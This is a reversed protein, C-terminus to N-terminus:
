QASYKKLMMMQGLHYADHQLCGMMLEYYTQSPKPSPKDLNEEKINHIANRLLHYASEFDHLTQRWNEESLENPLLFDHFPPPNNTGTLRNVVSTRWYIIHAVLQWTNNTKGDASIMARKADVAHLVEKFNNGIWCNGHQLDAFLKLIRNIENAMNKDPLEPFILLLFEFGCIFPLFPSYQFKQTKV